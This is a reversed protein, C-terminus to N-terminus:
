NYCTCPFIKDWCGRRQGMKNKGKTELLYKTAELFFILKETVINRFNWKPLSHYRFLEITEMFHLVLKINNIAVALKPLQQKWTKLMRRLNKFKATLL